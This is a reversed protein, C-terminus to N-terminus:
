EKLQKEFIPILVSLLKEDKIEEVYIDDQKPNEKVIAVHNTINEQDPSIQLLYDYFSNEYEIKSVVVYKEDHDLTLVTNIEIM